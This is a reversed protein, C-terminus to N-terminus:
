QNCIDGYAIRETSCNATILDDVNLFGDLCTYESDDQAAACEFVDVTADLCASSVPTILPPYNGGLYSACDAETDDPCMGSGSAGGQGLPEKTCVVHILTALTARPDPVGGGSGGDGGAGAGGVGGAEGGAGGGAIPATGGTEEGGGGGNAGGSGGTEVPTGGTGGKATSGGTTAGGTTAGGTATGGTGGKATSGGTATGGTGGKATSGGTATGGTGGKATSGGTSGGKGGTAGTSDDDDGCALPLALLAFALAVTFPKGM